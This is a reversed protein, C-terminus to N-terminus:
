KKIKFVKNATIRNSLSTTIRTTTVVGNASKFYRGYERGAKDFYSALYYGPALSIAASKNASLKVTAVEGGKYYNAGDETTLYYVKVSADRPIVEGQADAVSIKNLSNVIKITNTKGPKL